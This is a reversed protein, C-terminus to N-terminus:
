KLTYKWNKNEGSLKLYGLAVFKTLHKRTTSESKDILESAIAPTIEHQEQLYHELLAFIKQEAQSLPAEAVTNAEYQSLTTLIIRLMFEIFVTSDNERDAQALVRYYEAQNEHIITEIPIWAFIQHWQALIVTQWMRGIRGNGDEFPHITEIEYHFVCSKILEQTDDSLGWNFLDTMLDGIFQPRAGMHVLNGATDYIGVDTQRYHGSMTVIEQTLIKHARLFDAQQYPNFTVIKEYAAYANTVEKMEKPDGLVRKGDIIATVQELTLSNREIALSSQISKIRNEKRLKSNREVQVELKGIMKAIEAVAHLMTNTISFPPKM